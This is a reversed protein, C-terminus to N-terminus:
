YVECIVEGGLKRKKADSGTLIGKSTSIISIGYGGLIRKIEYSPKYSRRGPKSIRKVKGIKPSGEEFVLDAHIMKANRKEPKFVKVGSLFGEKELIKLVEEIIGSHYFEVSPKKAMAANSITSLANALPDM